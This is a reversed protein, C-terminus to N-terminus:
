TPLVEANEFACARRETLISTSPSALLLFVMPLWPLYWWCALITGRDSWLRMLQEIGIVLVRGVVYRSCLGTAEAIM